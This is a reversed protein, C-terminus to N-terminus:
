RAAAEGEHQGRSWPSSRWSRCCITRIVDRVAGTEEYFRGRGPSGIAEAMTVQVSAVFNRKWVPELFSIPSASTCFTQVAEKGLYHDIRFSAPEPFHAHADPQARAGFALDHGFPKEVVV